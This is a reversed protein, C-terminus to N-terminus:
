IIDTHPRLQELHKQLRNSMTSFSIWTIGGSIFGSIVPIAKSIAKAFSEKTLKIGIWAAVKKALNYIGWKTLAEKPLRVMVQAAVKESLEGLAKSAASAGFMVGVFITVIMITEDTPEGDEDFLEPWGHLYALKQLIVSIHWFFQTMDAPLTGAVWWGGPIGTAFSTATVGAKHFRISSKSIKNIINAPVGAKAPTTQVSKKVIEDSVYKSLEKRLYSDRNIKAGPISMSARVVRGWVEIEKQNETTM